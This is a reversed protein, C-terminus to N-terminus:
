MASRVTLETAVPAEPVLGTSAIRATSEVGGSGVVTTVLGLPIAEVDRYWAEGRTDDDVMQVIAEVFVRPLRTGIPTMAVVERGACYAVSALQASGVPSWLVDAGVFSGSVVVVDCEGVAAAARQPEVLHTVVENRELVRVMHDAGNDGDIVCVEFGFSSVLALAIEWSWGNVAVMGGDPWQTALHEALHAPTSDGRVGDVCRRLTDRPELATLLEACLWWLPGCTPHREVIRRCTLVLNAHDFGLGRLASATEAVLEPADAYGARALYRLHEIPHM